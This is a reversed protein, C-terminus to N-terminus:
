RRSTRSSRPGPPSGPSSPGGPRPSRYYRERQFTGYLTARDAKACFEDEIAWSLAMLTSKKLRHVGLQPHRRRLFAYISPAAPEADAMAHAIALELRTGADKHRIVTLIAEVDEERYRRHGSQLRQPAPFGHRTEWM